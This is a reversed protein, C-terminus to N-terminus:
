IKESDSNFNIAYITLSAHCHLGEWRQRTIPALRAGIAAGGWSQQHGVGACHTPRELGGPFSPLAHHGGQDRAETDYLLLNIAINAVNYCISKQKKHLFAFLYIVTFSDTFTLNWRFLDLQFGYFILLLLVNDANFLSPLYTLVHM